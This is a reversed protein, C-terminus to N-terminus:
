GRMGQSNATVLTTKKERMNMFCTQLIKTHGTKTASNKVCSVFFNIACHGLTVRAEM